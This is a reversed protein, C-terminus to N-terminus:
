TYPLPALDARATALRRNFDRSARDGRGEGYGRAYRDGEPRPGREDPRAFEARGYGERGSGREHRDMDQRPEPRFEPAGDPNPAVEQAGIVGGFGILGLAGLGCAFLVATRTGRATFLQKSSM